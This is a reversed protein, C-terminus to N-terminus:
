HFESVLLFMNYTCIDCPNKFIDNRQESVFRSDKNLFIMRIM